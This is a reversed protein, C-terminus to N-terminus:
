LRQHEHKNRLEILPLGQPEVWEFFPTSWVVAQCAVHCIVGFCQWWPFLQLVVCGTSMISGDQPSDEIEKYVRWQQSYLICGKAYVRLYVSGTWSGPEEHFTYVFKKHVTMTATSRILIFQDHSTYVVPKNIRHHHYAKPFGILGHLAPHSLVVEVHWNALAYSGVMAQSQYVGNNSYM